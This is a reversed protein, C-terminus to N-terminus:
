RSNTERASLTTELFREHAAWVTSQDFDAAVRERGATSLRDILGPETACRVLASALAQADNVPFILGTIGDVVSDRAGTADTTITPIGLAAAELVVNPFGERLTPLCNVDMALFYPRPDTVAMVRHVPLSEGVRKIHGEIEDSESSGVILLQIPVGLNSAIQAAELLTPIGKDRNARGVFGVTFADRRESLVKATDSDVVPMSAEASYHALNVGTASGQGLVLIDRAIGELEAAEALSRSNAIIHTAGRATLKELTRYIARRAGTETELRLGWMQYVRLPVGTLRAAVMGLLSAKPTASVVAAPRSKIFLAIMRVLSVADQLPAPDRRMPIAIARVGESQAIRELDGTSHGVLTVDWGKSKLFALYGRYFAAASMDSTVLLYLKRKGLILRERHDLGHITRQQYEQKATQAVEL